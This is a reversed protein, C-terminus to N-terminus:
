VHGLQAVPVTYLLQNDDGPVAVLETSEEAEKNPSSRRVLHLVKDM